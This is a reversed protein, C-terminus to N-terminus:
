KNDHRVAILTILYTMMTTFDADASRCTPVQM